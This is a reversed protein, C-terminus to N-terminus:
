GAVALSPPEPAVITSNFTYVHLESSWTWLRVWIRFMVYAQRLALVLVVMAISEQGALESLGHYALFLALANASCIWYVALTRGRNSFVFRIAGSTARLASRANGAVCLIKAYDFIMNVVGMLFLIVVIQLWHLITWPRAEMSTERALSILRGIGGNLALVIGYFFISVLALRFLRPFYRACSSFFADQEHRFLALAGGALFTNVLLFVVGLAVGVVGIDTASFGKFNYFAEAVWALDINSFMRASELSHSLDRALFVALPAAVIAAVTLNLLYFLGTLKFLRMSQRGGENLAAIAKV